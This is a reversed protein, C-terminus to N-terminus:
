RSSRGAAIAMCLTYGLGDGVKGESGDWVKALYEM